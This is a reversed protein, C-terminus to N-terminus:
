GRREADNQKKLVSVVGLGLILIVLTFVQGAWDRVDTGRGRVGRVRRHCVEQRWGDDASM